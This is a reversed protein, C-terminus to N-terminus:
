AGLPGNAFNERDIAYIVHTVEAGTMESVLLRDTLKGGIKEMARRSRLNTEGVLFIARDYHALAHGLMLRKMRRNTDGGWHDRSLFTWGIEVENGVAREFSYRSSGIVRGDSKDIVVFAADDAIAEDFYNRFVHEKWRDHAPHLSWILPDCAAAFTADWDAPEMPRLLITDDELILKTDFVNTM